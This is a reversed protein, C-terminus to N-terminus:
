RVAGTVPDRNGFYTHSGDHAVFIIWSKDEPEIWGIHDSNNSYTGVRIFM